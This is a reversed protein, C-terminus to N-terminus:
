EPRVASRREEMSRALPLYTTHFRQGGQWKAADQLMDFAAPLLNDLCSSTFHSGVM